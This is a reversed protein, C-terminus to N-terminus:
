TLARLEETRAGTLLSLVIYARLPSKEAAKLLADAQSFTLSKSPRGPKGEPLDCLLAVNRRVKDRKQARSLARRLISLVERLSRTALVTARDALWRDVDEASLERVKRAGLHPVIHTEALIRAKEVTSEARRPMGFEIFDWVAQAVTYRRDEPTGEELERLLDRLKSQAETKTKATAKRRIRKGAATYGVTVSAVWRQREEEWYLGGDGRSRRKPM